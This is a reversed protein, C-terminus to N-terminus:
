AVKKAGAILGALFSVGDGRTRAADALGGFDGAQQCLEYVGPCSLPRNEGALHKKAAALAEAKRGLKLLLNVYVEAPFSSGQAIGPEVKDRFHRLGAEVDEGDLTDLLVKYDAYTNEFPPDSAFKFSDSLKEGYACLERALKREPCADLELSFQVVSSLHSTDIHYAGDDFLDPHARVIDGVGAGPPITMGRSEADAKLRERLQDYLTRVLTRICHQKAGPTRSFDQGSYTTIANCIGYREVVLEFGRTPHVGHYLGVEVLPQVDDEAGPKARDIYERVADPEGLMNFYFWAKRLDDRKLFEGGVLRGAERIAQEYAAHTEPPLEAAAGTPFPSVGLEVRKKMLLAYFLADLDGLERLDSCLQDVAAAPGRAALTRQLREYTEPSLRPPPPQEDPDFM